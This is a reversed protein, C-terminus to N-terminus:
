IKIKLRYLFLLICLLNISPSFMSFHKKAHKGETFLLLNVALMKMKKNLNDKQFGGSAKAKQQNANYYKVYDKLLM